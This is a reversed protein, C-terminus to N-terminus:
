RVRTMVWVASVVAVAPLGIVIWAGLPPALLLWAVGVASGCACVLLRPALRGPLSDSIAVSYLALSAFLVAGCVATFESAGPLPILPQRFAGLALGAVGDFGASAAGAGISQLVLSSAGFSIASAPLTSALRARARVSRSIGFTAVAPYVLLAASLWSAVFIRAFAGYSPDGTTMFGLASAPLILVDGAFMIVAKGTDMRRVRSSAFYLIARFLVLSFVAEEVATAPLLGPTSLWAWVSALWPLGLGVVGGAAAVDTVGVKM